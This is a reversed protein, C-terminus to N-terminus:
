KLDKVNKELFTILEEMLLINLSQFFGLEIYGKDEVNSLIYKSIENYNKYNVESIKLILKKNKVLYIVEWSGSKGTEITTFSYDLSKWDIFKFKFFLFKYITIGNMSFKLSNLFLHIIYLIWFPVILVPLLVLNMLSFDNGFIIFSTFVIIWFISFFIGFFSFIVPFIFSKSNLEMKKIKIGKLLFCKWSKVGL